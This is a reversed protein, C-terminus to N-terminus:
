SEERLASVYRELYVAPNSLMKLFDKNSIPTNSFILHQIKLWWSNM